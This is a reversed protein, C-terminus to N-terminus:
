EHFNICRLLWFEKYFINQAARVFTSLISSLQSPSTGLDSLWATLQSSILGRTLYVLSYSTLDTFSVPDFWRSIHHPWSDVFPGGCMSCPWDATYLNPRTTMLRDHFPLEMLLLKSAFII